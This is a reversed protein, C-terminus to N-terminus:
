RRHRRHRKLVRARYNAMWDNIQTINLGTDVSIVNKEKDTPYPYTIHDQAWKKLYNRIDTNFIGAEKVEVKMEEDDENNDRDEEYNKDNNNNYQSNNTIHIVLSSQSQGEEPEFKRSKFEELVVEIIDDISIKCFSASRQRRM